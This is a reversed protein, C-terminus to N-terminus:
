GGMMKRMADAQRSYYGSHPSLPNRANRDLRALREMDRSRQQELRGARAAIEREAPTQFEPLRGLSQDWMGGINANAEGFGSRMDARVGGLQRSASGYGSTLRDLIGQYPREDMQTNAYFQDMGRSSQGYAPASLQMLGSLTQGLMQSPMERSSYHQSDLQQRGADAQSALMGGIPNGTISGRLGDLGAMSQGVNTGGSRSGSGGFSFGNGGYTGSAVPGYPGTARFGGGGGGGGGFSFNALADSAMQARGLGAYANGLGGLANNQSQGFQSIGQQNAAHMTAAANNYAQQNAGWAGLAANSASGYAGLAASGVSALGAQRAAEAMANAGYRAGAENARATAVSGLGMGYAGYANAMSQGLGGLGQMYGNAVQGYANAFQGPQQYLTQFIPGAAAGYPRPNQM